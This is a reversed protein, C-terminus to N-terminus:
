VAQYQRGGGQLKFLIAEFGALTTRGLPRPIDRVEKSLEAYVGGCTIRGKARVNGNALVGTRLPDLDQAARRAKLDQLSKEPDDRDRLRMYRSHSLTLKTVQISGPHISGAADSGPGMEAIGLSLSAEDRLRMQMVNKHTMLAEALNRVGQVEVEQLVKRMPPARICCVVKDCGRTAASVSSMDTVDGEVVEVAAPLKALSEEDVRRVLARVKYGRLLLKNCVVRGVRGTAGAVLVRHRGAEPTGLACFDAAAGDASEAALSDELGDLNAPRIPSSLSAFVQWAEEVARRSARGLEIPNANELAQAAELAAGGM